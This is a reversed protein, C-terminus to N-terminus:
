PEPDLTWSLNTHNFGLDPAVDVAHILSLRLEEGGGGGMGWVM